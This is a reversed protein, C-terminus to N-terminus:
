AKLQTHVPNLRFTRAPDTKKENFNDTYSYYRVDKYTM